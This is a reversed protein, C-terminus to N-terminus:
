RSVEAIEKFRDGEVVNVFIVAAKNDGKADWEVPRAYAIGQVKLAHMARVVEDRGPLGNRAKAATEIAQILLRASDYSSPAYNAIPAYHARYREAFETSGPVRGVAPAASLVRVGEGKLVAGEAPQIFGKVDWCGDGCAFLQNIGRERMQKLLPAAEAIGGFMLVDFDAPLADLLPRFDRDGVKVSQRLSLTGGITAFSAAFADALGKGYQTGDDIVVAKRKRETNYLFGALAPGKHDDRNTLRFINDFGRETVGPNSSMPTIMLLACGHYIESAAISVGSNVHGVVGLISADDCFRQAVEQGTKNDARDDLTELALKAGLLGGAENREAVALEVAQKMEVGFTAAGGTLPAGIGIKVVQGQLQAFAPGATAAALLTAAVLLPRAHRPSM